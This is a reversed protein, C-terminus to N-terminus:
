LTEVIQAYLCSFISIIYNPTLPTILAAFAENIQTHLNLLDLDMFYNPTLPSTM